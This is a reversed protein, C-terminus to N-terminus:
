KKELELRCLFSLSGVVTAMIPVSNVPSSSLLVSLHPTPPSHFTKGLTVGYILQSVVTFRSPNSM